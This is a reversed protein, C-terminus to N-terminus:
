LVRAHLRSCDGSDSSSTAVLNSLMDLTVCDTADACEEGIGDAWEDGSLLVSLTYNANARLENEEVNQLLTGGFLGSPTPAQIIFRPSALLDKGFRLVSSPLVVSVTEPSDIAYSAFQPISINATRLDLVRVNNFDLANRVVANWGSAGDESAVVSKALETQLAASTLLASAFDIDKLRITLSNEAPSQISEGNANALLLGSLTCSGESANIVLRLAPGAPVLPPSAGSLVAAAPIEVHVTEPTTIQPAHSELRLCRPPTRTCNPPPRPFPTRHANARRPRLSDSYAECRRRHPPTHMM